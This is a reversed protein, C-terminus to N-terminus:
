FLVYTGTHKGGNKTTMSECYIVCAMVVPDVRGPNWQTEVIQAARDPETLPRTMNKRGETWEIQPEQEEDSIYCLGLVESGRTLERFAAVLERPPTRTPRVTFEYPEGSPLWREPNYASAESALVPESIAGRALMIEGDALTCHAHILCVGFGYNYQSLLVSVAAFFPERDRFKEDAEILTPLKNYTKAVVTVAPDM